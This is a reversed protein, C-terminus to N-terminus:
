RYKLTSHGTDSLHKHLKNRSEFEEGCKECINVSNKSTAKGKKGKSPIKLKTNPEKKAVGKNDVFQHSSKTKRLHDDNNGDKENEVFSTSSSEQIHMDGHGNIEDDLNTEDFDGKEPVGGDNKGREKKGRRRRSKRNNYEMAEMEENMDKVNVEVTVDESVYRSARNKRSKHGSLMAELVSMEGDGDENDDGHVNADGVGLTEAEDGDEVDFFGDEADSLEPIEVGNGEERIRFDEELRKEVEELNSVVEKNNEEEDGEFDEKMEEEKEEEEKDEHRFSERLEAVKEKHKKSQEHNKWQKESKFKKSCVVCYLEKGGSGKKEKEEEEFGELDELEDENVRAWEPEEYTRAREMRERELKKKREKEEKKKKEIEANKKVMMDIVRKDRKKVFEALGRVTENYERRAKKRLKKNEEEMVRRSKRNPGAMVDYQDVWCFDMVTSFGFWYNYFATVQGYPSELNGMVPAERVNELGLGLKKCFSIENAYIKNFVDSYVKYFGKGTDTYGSYVTNSFFSFLNPIVSGPVSNASNPDSFLIQSRHSDYWAREKPDSLVEYAQALEQFQATAEAQSLGSQVLKDPHRQLALKKYASRIEDATCDQSLGLVEYHCRKESAM